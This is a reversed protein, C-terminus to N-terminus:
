AAAAKGGEQRLARLRWGRFTWRRGGGEVVAGARGTPERRRCDEAAGGRDAEEAAAEAAAAAAAGAAAASAELDRLKDVFTVAQDPVVEVGIIHVLPSRQQIEDPSTRGAHQM